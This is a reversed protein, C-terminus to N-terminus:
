FRGGPYGVVVGKLQLDRVAQAAWHGPPVDPFQARADGSSAVTKRGAPPAESPHSQPKAASTKRPSAHAASITSLGGLATLGICISM